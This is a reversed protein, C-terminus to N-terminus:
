QEGGGPDAVTSILPIFFCEEREKCNFHVSIASYRADTDSSNAHTVNIESFTTIKGM